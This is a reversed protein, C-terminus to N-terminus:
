IQDLVQCTAFFTMLGSLANVTFGFVDSLLNKLNVQIAAITKTM